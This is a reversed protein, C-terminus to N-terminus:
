RLRKAQQYLIERYSRKEEGVLIETLLREEFAGLWRKRFDRRLWCGGNGAEFDEPKAEKRRVMGIVLADVLWRMEEQLDAALADYRDEGRHFIGIRPNLGAEQLATSAHRHLLSYGFSLM